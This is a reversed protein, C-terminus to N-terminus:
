KITLIGTKVGYKLFGCDLAFISYSGDKLYHFNMNTIYGGYARHSFVEKKKIEGNPLVEAMILTSKEPNNMQDPQKAPDKSFNDENDNYFILLKNKFFIPEFSGAVFKFNYMRRIQYGGYAQWVTAQKKSILSFTTKNNSDFTTILVDGWIEVSSTGSMVEQFESMLKITGEPLISVTYRIRFDNDLGAKKGDKKGMNDIDVKDLIKQPIAAFVTPAGIVKKAENIVAKFAGSIRGNFVDKYLGIICIKGKEDYAISSQHIFKGESAFSYNTEQKGEIICISTVFGPIKNGDSKVYDKDYDKEYVNYSLYIKGENDISADNLRVKKELEKFNHTTSTIVSMKSDAAVIVVEKNEKKKLDPEYTFLIKSSDPSYDISLDSPEIRNSNEYASLNLTTLRKITGQVRLDTANIQQYNIQMIDSSKDIEYSLLYYTSKLKVFDLFGTKGADVPFSFDLEGLPELNKSFRILKISPFPNITTNYGVTTIKKFKMGFVSIVDEADSPISKMYIGNTFIGSTSKIKDSFTVSVNQAALSNALLVSIAIIIFSKIQM